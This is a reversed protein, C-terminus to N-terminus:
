VSLLDHRGQDIESIRRLYLETLKVSSLTGAKMAAQLEAITFESYEFEDRGTAEAAALEASDSSNTKSQDKGGGCGTLVTAATGAVTVAAAAALSGNRLFKRRNM